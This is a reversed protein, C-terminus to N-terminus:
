TQRTQGLMGATLSRPDRSRWRNSNIQHYFNDLLRNFELPEELHLTHGAGPLIALEATQIARKLYISPELTPDDEDGTVILTPLLVSALDTRFVENFPPRELQVGRMTLAAGVASRTALQSKFEMYGRPDKNAFQLRAPANAYTEAFVGMGSREILGAGQMVQSRFGTSSEPDAGYGCGGLVLSIVRKPQQMGLLLATFAGMSVGILHAREIGLSDMVDCVDQLTRDQSYAKIDDPVDSPPFGRANFAVCRYRRSFHRLQAEYSRLDGGFEHIFIIPTGAGAEEYYLSIGDNTKIKPM